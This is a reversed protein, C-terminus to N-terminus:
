FLIQLKKLLEIVSENFEETLTYEVNNHFSQNKLRRKFIDQIKTVKGKEKMEHFTVHYYYFHGITFVTM